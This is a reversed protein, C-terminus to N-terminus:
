PSTLINMAKISAVIPHLLSVLPRLIRETQVALRGPWQRLAIRRTFNIGTFTVLDSYFLLLM